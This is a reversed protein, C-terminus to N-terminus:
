YIQKLRREFYESRKARYAQYDNPTPLTWGQVANWVKVVTVNQLVWGMRMCTQEGRSLCGLRDVLGEPTPECFRYVENRFEVRPILELAQKKAKKALTKVAELMRHLDRKMIPMGYSVVRDTYDRVGLITKKEGASFAISYPLSNIHKQTERLLKVQEELFLLNELADREGHKMFFTLSPHKSLLPKTVHQNLHKLEHYLFAAIIIKNNSTILERSIEEDTLTKGSAGLSAALVISGCLVVAFLIPFSAAPKWAEARHSRQPHPPLGGGGSFRGWRWGPCIRDDPHVTVKSSTGAAKLWMPKLTGTLWKIM